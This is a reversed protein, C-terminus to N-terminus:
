RKALIFEVLASYPYLMGQCLEGRVESSGKRRTHSQPPRRVEPLLSIHDPCPGAEERSQRAARMKSNRDLYFSDGMAKCHPLPYM